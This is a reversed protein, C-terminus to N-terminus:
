QQYSEALLRKEESMKSLFKALAGREFREIADLSESLAKCFDWESLFITFDKEKMYTGPKIASKGTMDSIKEANGNEIHIKYPYESLNEEYSIALKSVFFRGNSVQKHTIKEQSFGKIKNKGVKSLLFNDGGIVKKAIVKFIAPELNHEVFVAKGDPTKVKYDIGVLKIRSYENHICDKKMVSLDNAQLRNEFSLLKQNGHVATIEYLNTNKLSM